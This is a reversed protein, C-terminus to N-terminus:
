HLTGHMRATDRAMRKRSWPDGTLEGKRAVITPYTAVFPNQMRAVFPNQMQQRFVNVNLEVLAAADRRM